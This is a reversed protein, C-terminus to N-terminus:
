PPVEILSGRNLLYVWPTIIHRNILRMTHSHHDQIARSRFPSPFSYHQPLLQTHRVQDRPKNRDYDNRKTHPKHIWLEKWFKTRTGSDREPCDRLNFHNTAGCKFCGRFGLPYKSIYTPDDLRYPYLLGDPGTRVPLNKPNPQDTRQSTDKYKALTQEAPSQRQYLFLQGQHVPQDTPKIDHQPSPIDDASHFFTKGIVSQLSNTRSSQRHGM